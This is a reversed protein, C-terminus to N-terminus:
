QLPNSHLPEGQIHSQYFPTYASDYEIAIDGRLDNSANRNVNAISNVAQFRDALPTALLDTGQVQLVDYEEADMPADGPTFSGEGQEPAEAPASTQEGEAGVVDFNEYNIENNEQEQEQEQKQEQEEAASEAVFTEPKKNEVIKVVKKEVNTMNEPKSENTCVTNYLLYALVCLALVMIVRSVVM